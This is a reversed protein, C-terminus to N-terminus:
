SRALEVLNPIDLILSVRGDGLIAAGSIGKVYGVGEGLSKVVVQQQDLLEDVKLCCKENGSEVIVLLSKDAVNESTPIIDFLRYLNVVPFLEGRVLVMECLGHVSSVQEAEIQLSECVCVLPIIYRNNGVRIIQGDIIALTLPLRITFTAGKGPVSSIDIKGHLSEINKKVVDMGVGRGSIDTVEQATSLGARFILSYTEQESLEQHPQVIGNDIAKRLILQRDLGKGDDSLEIVINGSKHYASLRINGAAEKGAKTREDSCEIGHGISNRIMHVLPDSILGIVNRDLETEEGSITLNIDKGAKQSLDRVLRAIKQFVGGIPVMRMSMSLEQIENVIRNQHHIQQRFNERDSTYDNAHQTVMSQAIVLEGVMNVLSDLRKTSVRIKENEVNTKHGHVGTKDENSCHKDQPLDTTSTVASETKASLIEDSDQDTEESEVTDISTTLSKDETRGKLQDLLQPLNEQKIAPQGSQAMTRLDAIMNKMMDLSELIVNIESSTLSLNRTRTIDLLSEAAHSLSVMDDLHVFGASGKITHFGRFISDLVEDHNPDDELRLLSSEISEINEEAEDAFDVVLSMDEESIVIVHENEGVLPPFQIDMDRIESGESAQEALIQLASITQTITQLSQEADDAKPDAIDNVLECAANTADKARVSLEEPINNTKDIQESIQALTTQLHGLEKSGSPSAANIASAAQEVLEGLKKTNEM